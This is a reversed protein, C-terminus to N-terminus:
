DPAKPQHAAGEEGNHNVEADQLVLGLRRCILDEDGLCGDRNDEVLCGGAASLLDSEILGL